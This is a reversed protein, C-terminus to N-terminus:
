HVKDLRALMPADGQSVTDSSAIPLRIEFRSGLGPSSTLSATGAFATAIRRVIALGVGVGPVGRRRAQEARYFPEFVRSTEAPPIGAGSDVVALIAQDTDHDFLTEVVIPSADRGYKQANDLLNDLLQALLPPHVRVPLPKGGASQRIRATSLNTASWDVLHQAVWRELDVIECDLLQADSDSRALFLLAEIIQRLQDAKALASSLTRRYEAQSREQKLAVEIQGILITLPTRLQHSADTSFQRQRHYAVHLRALLGNFAEGLDDLEDGTGALELSWGPDDPNLERASEVM